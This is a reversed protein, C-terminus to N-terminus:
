DTGKAWNGWDKLTGSGIFHCYPELISILSEDASKPSVQAIVKVKVRYVLLFCLIQFDCGQQHINFTRSNINPIANGPPRIMSTFLTVFISTHARTTKVSYQKSRTTIREDCGSNIKYRVQSKIFRM